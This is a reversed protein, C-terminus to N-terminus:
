VGPLAELLVVVRTGDGNGGAEVSAWALTGRIQGIAQEESPHRSLDEFEPRGVITRLAELAAAVSEEAPLQGADLRYWAVSLPSAGFRGQDLLRWSKPWPM